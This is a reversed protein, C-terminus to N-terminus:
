DGSAYDRILADSLIRSGAIQGVIEAGKRPARLKMPDNKDVAFLGMRLDMGHNWEYNDMLTWYFYGRVDSGASIAEAVAKMNRIIFRPGSGDDNPDTTGNESIIAPLGLDANVYRVFAALKDPQNPTEVFALPNATFKPSLAPLLSIGLGKVELGSYWNIGVYDMRGKLDPRDVITGDLNEDYRGLAVAQLYARNWLYDIDAAARVDLAAGPDSPEVPVLPYVVGVFSARGDGDADVTDHAKVADYMRAHADILARLVTKAANTQLLVAPPHSRQASPEVYGFLMNQLPENLTAWWDVEAGFEEASFAAFKAIERVTREADVWGKPTCNAFDAHCGVADHIWTPLTYHNLTVFPRMQRKKLEAFISHYRSLAAASAAAKLNEYGDIGDTATPFIRSWELSLRLGGTHLTGEARAIDDAYLEWFGPGVISPNQGSLHATPDATIRTSTTFAYWDSNPDDCTARELSPCGMDVQFGAIATGFVFDSPFRLGSQSSGDGPPADSAGADSTQGADGGSPENARSDSGCGFTTTAALLLVPSRRCVALM